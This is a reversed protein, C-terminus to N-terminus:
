KEGELLGMIVNGHHEEDKMLRKVSPYKEVIAAYNNVADYERQAIMPYLRKKGLSKYLLPLTIAKQKRPLLRKKTLRYFVLAHRLEDKALVRFVEADAPNKAVKSLAFYMLAGDLEAQQSKLLIAKEKRSNM